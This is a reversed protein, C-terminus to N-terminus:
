CGAGVAVLGGVVLGGVLVLLWVVLLWVVLLWGFSWVGGVGVVDHGPVGLSAQSRLPTGRWPGRPVPSSGRRVM